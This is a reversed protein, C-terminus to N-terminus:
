FFLDATKTPIDPHPVARLVYRMGSLSPAVGVSPGNLPVFPSYLM